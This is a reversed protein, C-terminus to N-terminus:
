TSKKAVCLFYGLNAKSIAIQIEMTDTAPDSHGWFRSMSGHTLTIQSVLYKLTESHDEWVLIEFGQAQLRGTLETQGMADRVACSQPLARLSPIGDPDRAYIDSLALRGSPRLVRRFEALADELSSMASLSCEALVAAMQESTVPLSKGWACALALDHHHHIGTQLLLESRDVGLAHFPYTEAIYRISSGTGCGIDLIWDGASLGCQALMRDTLEMGGPRLVGGTATSLSGDVYMPQGTSEAM